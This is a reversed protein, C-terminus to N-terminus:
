FYSTMQRETSVDLLDGNNDLLHMQFTRGLGRTGDDFSEIKGIDEMKYYGSKIQFVIRKVFAYYNDKSGKHFDWASTIDPNTQHLRKAVKNFATIDKKMEKYPAAEVKDQKKPKYPLQAREKIKGINVGNTWDDENTLLMQNKAM